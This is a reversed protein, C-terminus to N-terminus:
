CTAHLLWVCRPSTCLKGNHSQSRTTDTVSDRARCVWAPAPTCFQLVGKGHLAPVNQASAPLQAIACVVQAVTGHANCVEHDDSAGTGRSGLTLAADFADTAARSVGSACLLALTAALQQILHHPTPARSRLADVAGCISEQFPGCEAARGAAARRGVVVRLLNAVPLGLTPSHLHKACLARVVDNLDVSDDVQTGFRQMACAPM